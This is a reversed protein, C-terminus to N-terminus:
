RGSTARRPRAACTSSWASSRPWTTRGRRDPRAPAAQRGREARAVGAQRADRRHHHGAAHRDRRALHVHRGALLRTNMAAFYDPSVNRGDATVSEFNRATEEDYAFPRSRAAAPSRCSPSSARRQHVGPLAELRGSSSAASPGARRAAPIATGSPLSLQFTLVDGADFGPRVQQLALFSRILLGAGVLLVVSLAVEGVILLNRVRQRDGGSGAAGAPRSTGQPDTAAAQLAPVLGFLVTTVPLHARHLRAGDTWRRDRGAAASQGPPAACCGCPPWRSRRPRARRRGGGAAPERDAAAAGGGLPERRARHAARVRARRTTARVLLLHAVNACAILLVLGGRRAPHAAGAPRAEGRRGAAAGRPDPGQVGDHEPFEKRFQLAIRDMEAQAQAFTVGPRLRGFVTFFTFNRPPAQGYDFQLPAWIEADTVLFAEAPLQLRFDPPLIGVVTHAVGDIQITKGSWRPDAATAGSALAPREADRRAPREGSGGRCSTGAWCRGRRRPAPLLQRHRHRHRGARARGRRHPQGRLSAVDGESAAAFAEFTRSRVSTTASTWRRCPRCRSPAKASITGSTPSGTRRRRVAAAPAARREGRHLDDDHRRHRAGLTTVAALTFGPTRRLARWAYRLDHGLTSM